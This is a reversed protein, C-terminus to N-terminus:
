EFESDPYFLKIPNLSIEEEYTHFCKDCELTVKTDIGPEVRKAYERFFASDKMPMIGIFKKIYGKDTINDVEMIQRLYRETVNKEYNIKTKQAGPLAKKV